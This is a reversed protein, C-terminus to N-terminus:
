NVVILISQLFFIQINLVTEGAAKDLHLVLLSVEKLLYHVNTTRRIFEDNTLQQTINRKPGAGVM